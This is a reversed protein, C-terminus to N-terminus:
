REGKIESACRSLGFRWGSKAYTAICQLEADNLQALEKGFAARSGSAAGRGNAGLRLFMMTKEEKSYAVDVMGIWLALAPVDLIRFPTRTAFKQFLARGLYNKLTLNGAKSAVVEIQNPSIDYELPGGQSAVKTPDICCRAFSAAHWGAFVLLFVLLPAVITVFARSM